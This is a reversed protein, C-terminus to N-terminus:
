VLLYWRIYLWGTFDLGCIYMFILTLYLYLKDSRSQDLGTEQALRSSSSAVHRILGKARRRTVSRMLFLNRRTHSYLFDNNPVM